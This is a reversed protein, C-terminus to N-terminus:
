DGLLEATPVGRPAGLGFPCGAAVLWERFHRSTSAPTALLLGQPRAVIIIPVQAILSAAVSGGGFHERRLDLRCHRDLFEVAMPGRLMFLALGASLDVATGLGECAAAWGSAANGADGRPQLLLWRGPRVCLALRRHNSTSQGFAPLIWGRAAALTRVEPERGRHCAVEVIDAAGTCLEVDVAAAVPAMEPASM